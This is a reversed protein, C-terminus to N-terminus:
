ADLGALFQRQGQDLVWDHSWEVLPRAAAGVSRLMRNAPALHSRLRASCGDGDPHLELEADGEIDGVVRARVSCAPRVDELLVSFRVDYPVPPSVTCAWRAGEDFGGIPRFRQLWPWWTEYDSVNTLREWLQEPSLEFCWSRDSEFTTVSPHLLSM